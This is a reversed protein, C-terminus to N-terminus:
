LSHTTSPQTPIVGYKTILRQSMSQSSVLACPAHPSMQKPFRLVAHLSRKDLFGYCLMVYEHLLGKYCCTTIEPGYVLPLTFFPLFSTRYDGVPLSIVIRPYLTSIEASHLVIMIASSTTVLPRFDERSYLTHNPLQITPYPKTCSQPVTHDKTGKTVRQADKHILSQSLKTDRQAKTIM